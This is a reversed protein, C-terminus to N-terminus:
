LRRSPSDDRSVAPARPQLLEERLLTFLTLLMSGYLPQRNMTMESTSNAEAFM